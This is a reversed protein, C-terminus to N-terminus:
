LTSESTCVRCSRTAHSMPLRSYERSAGSGDGKPLAFKVKDKGFYLRAAQTAAGTLCNYGSPHDSYPPNTGLPTWDPDAVTRPNGDQDALQIATLPRWFNWHIKDDFCGIAADAISVNLLALLRASQAANLGRAAAMERMAQNWPLVPSVTFFLALATQQETRTTSTASGLSKVQNFEAAYAPSTLDLPGDTRFQSTKKLTFPRVRGVWAFPDSIFAPPTPRWEGAEDGITLVFPVYRGDDAREALMAQAVTQGIQIGASKAPGDAIAALSVDLLTDLREIVVNPLAPVLGVLVGHGATAVAAEKSASRSVKPLGSLYPQHGGDIANVADYVAAQVMAMHLASVPPTMGAGPVPATPANTLADVANANWTLVANSAAGAQVPPGVASAVLLLVLAATVSRIKM